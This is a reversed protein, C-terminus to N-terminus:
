SEMELYKEEGYTMFCQDKLHLKEFKTKDSTMHRSCGNDLYWLDDKDCKIVQSSSSLEYGAM